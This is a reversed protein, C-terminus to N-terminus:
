TNDVKADFAAAERNRVRERHFVYLGSTVITVIGVWTWGDPFHGFILLGLLTASIIELYQFPALLSAPALRFAQVVLLHGTTAVIGLGAMLLWEGSDPMRAALVKIDFLAGAVLAIGMAVIGSLGAVFQMVIPDTSAALKRTLVLYAAFCCAACVPLLSALGFVEYSPRIIVLAGAFGVLVGLVRRWGISEGLFIASLLTLILPEVFFISIAEALPMFRLAAFFLLTTVAILVGRMAQLHLPGMSRAHGKRLRWPIIPFLLLAQFLFRTLAIQGPSHTATLLKALADIGPIWLMALAMIVMGKETENKPLM